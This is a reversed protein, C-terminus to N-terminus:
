NGTNLAATIQAVTQMAYADGNILGAPKMTIKSYLQPFGAVSMAGARNVESFDFDGASLAKNVVMTAKNSLNGTYLYAPEIYYLTLAIERAM